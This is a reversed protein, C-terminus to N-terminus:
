PAAVAELQSPRRSNHHEIIQQYADAMQAAVVKWPLHEAVWHRGNRGM